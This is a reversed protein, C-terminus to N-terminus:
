RSSGSWRGCCWCAQRFCGSCTTGSCRCCRAASRWLAVAAIVATRPGPGFRPRAAAYFFTMILGTLLSAVVSIAFMGANMEMTLGHAEMAAQMKGMYFMSFVGERIWIVLGAAVGGGIWRGVNIGNM